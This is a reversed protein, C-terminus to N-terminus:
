VLLFDDQHLDAVRVGILIVSDNADFAITTDTGDDSANLIFDNYSAFAFDSIDIQDDSGAGTAFDTVTNFGDGDAFVFTDDGADGTLIDGRAIEKISSSNSLVGGEMEWLETTGDIQNIWFVDDLKGDGDFDGVGAAEVDESISGFIQRYDSLGSNEIEWLASVGDTRNLWLVDNTRNDGDFDGIAAIEWNTSISGFVQGYDSLMGNETEWQVTVGNQQNHWFIDDNKGDGDFDGVGAIQWDTSISGFLQSRSTLVGSEM